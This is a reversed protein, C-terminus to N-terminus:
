ELFELNLVSEVQQIHVSNGKPLRQNTIEGVYVGLLGGTVDDFVGAGSDGPSAPDDLDVDVPLAPDSFVGWRNAVEAIRTVVTSKYGRVTCPLYQAPWRQLTRQALPPPAGTNVIAVDLRDEIVEVTGTGGDTLAVTAGIKRSHLPHACGLLGDAGGHDRERVFSAASAGGYGAPLAHEILRPSSRRIVLPGGEDPWYQLVEVANRWGFGPRQRSRLPGDFMYSQLRRPLSDFFTAFPHDGALSITIGFEDAETVPDLYGVGVRVGAIGPDDISLGFEFVLADLLEHGTALM